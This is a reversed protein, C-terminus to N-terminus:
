PWTNPDTPQGTLWPLLRSLKEKNQEEELYRRDVLSFGHAKIVTFRIAFCHQARKQAV